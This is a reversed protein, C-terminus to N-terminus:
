GGFVEGAYSLVRDAFVDVIVEGTGLAPAPVDRVALPAGIREFVVAKV